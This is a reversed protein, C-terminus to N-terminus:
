GLQRAILPGLANAVPLPLKRWVDIMLKYKPNNPNVEPLSDGKYLHFAYHLPTPEFGWYTKFDFAGSGRKSRGFDFVNCGREVARGMLKFYMLDYAHAKRAAPVAGGYYPMVQDRFFYTMLASLPGDPGNIASIEVDNPFEDRVAAFFTKPFVPTGLNRVSESYIQFFGDLSFNTDVSLTDSNLGKRVDARKKRPIAKLNEDEKDSLTRKFTAYMEDKVPWGTLLPLPKESRLELHDVKLKAGLDVADAALAQFAEDDSALIGGYVCFGVSVLSKGFLPSKVHVLPLVGVIEGGRRALRFHCDHGYAKRIVRRWGARHFFSADPHGFVFTEYAQELSGGKADDLSDIQIGTM